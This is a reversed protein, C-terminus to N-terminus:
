DSSAKLYYVIKASDIKKHLDKIGMDDTDRMKGHITVPDGNLLLDQLNEYDSKKTIMMWIQEGEPTKCLCIKDRITMFNHPEMEVAEFYVMTGNKLDPSYPKEPKLKDIAPLIGFLVLFMVGVVIIGFVMYAGAESRRIRM